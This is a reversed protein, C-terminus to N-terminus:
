PVVQTLNPELARQLLRRVAQPRSPIDPEQRRFNELASYLEPQLYLQIAARGEPSRVATASAKM